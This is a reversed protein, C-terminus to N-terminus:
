KKSYVSLLMEVEAQPLECEHMIEEIDAGLAALKYARTYLKDEPQQELCQQLKDKLQVSEQQLCQMRHELQKFVQETEISQSTYQSSLQTLLSQQNEYSFTFESFLIENMEMKNALEANQETLNKIKIWLSIGIVISLLLALVAIIPVALLSM